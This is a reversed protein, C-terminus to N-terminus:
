ASAVQRPTTQTGADTLMPSMTPPSHVLSSMRSTRSRQKGVGEGEGVGCACGVGHWGKLVCFCVFVRVCSCVYMCVYMCVCRMVQAEAQDEYLFGERRTALMGLFEAGLTGKFM